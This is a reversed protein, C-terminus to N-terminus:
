PDITFPSSALIAKSSERYKIGTSIHNVISVLRGTKWGLKQYVKGNRSIGNGGLGCKENLMSKLFKTRM